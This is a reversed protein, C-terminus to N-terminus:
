MLRLQRALPALAEQLMRRGRHVRSKVTGTPIGLVKAADKLEMQQVDVLLITWRIEEPLHQLAGIIEVDGIAELVEQPSDWEAVPSEPHEPEVALAELSVERASASRARLHDIRTNRLIRALWAPMNTGPRFQELSRFAKLLTEQALDDAETENGTLIRALRLLGARHPWVLEYFRERADTCDM